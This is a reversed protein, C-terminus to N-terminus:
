AIPDDPHEQNWLAKIDASSMGLRERNTVTGRFRGQDLATALRTAARYGVSFDGSLDVTPSFIGIGELKVSRGSRTFFIVGEALEELVMKVESSKISTRQALFEALEETSAHDGLKVRPGYTGIAQILRAM